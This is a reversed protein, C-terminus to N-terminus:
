PRDLRGAGQPVRHPRRHLDTGGSEDDRHHRRERGPNRPDRGRHAARGARRRHCRHGDHHDVVPDPGYRTRRREARGVPARRLRVHHAGRRQGASAKTWAPLRIAGSGSEAAPASGGSPTRGSVDDEKHSDDAGSDFQSGGHVLAVLEQRPPRTASRRVHAVASRAGDAVARPTIGTLCGRLWPRFGPVGAQRGPGRAGGRLPDLNASRIQAGEDCVRRSLEPCSFEVVIVVGRPLTLVEEQVLVGRQIESVFGLGRAWVGKQASRVLRGQGVRVMMCFVREPGMASFPM